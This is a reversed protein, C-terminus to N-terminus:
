FELDVTATGDNNVTFSSTTDPQGNKEGSSINYGNISLTYVGNPVDEVRWLRYGAGYQNSTLPYETGDEAILTVTYRDTQTGPSDDYIQARFGGTTVEWIAKLTVDSEPIYNRSTYTPIKTVVNGESDLLTGEVEFGVLTYGSYSLESRFLSPLSYTDGEFVEETIYEENITGGNRDITVANTEEEVLRFAAFIASLSGLNEDNLMITFINKEDTSEAHQSSVTDNIEAYTGKPTDLTITYLGEPLEEDTFWQLYDNYSGSFVEEEENTVIIDVDDTRKNDLDRVEVGLPYTAPEPIPEGYIKYRIFTTTSNDVFELDVTATGDNNVVFVSTTGPQGFKEGDSINFGNIVLTYTDNPVDQVKWTRHGPGYQNSTLPYETGDEAVLTVTYRERQSGPADDYIQAIFEGTTEEWIATLTVDSEPTYNRTTYTPIETVANGESDLLTGEVEFGALTYGSLSLGSRFLSPLSYTDGEFVEATIYEENITGGNPNITVTNTEEEVLKFAAFIASLSGLNEDNLMITFVNKEDTPEAHQSAVTDNIEAYTGNPTDLTITYLGEPLEEDTFWQLYDNYSGAFVEEEENTVVIDVDDTRKNDLDRVEIGLPYTAPEPIPEGYISYRIFTTSKNDVFELDVTATGDNNVVFVSTTGPQGFKEGDSINFGNIVLTYTDNPVDQVKWTRHGPGYQNSTLLYETGDEAVLTVTYRERQSGPADDYIQAI